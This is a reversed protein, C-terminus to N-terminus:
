EPSNTLANASLLNDLFAAYEDKMPLEANAVIRRREALVTQRTVPNYGEKAYTEWYLGTGRKQWAPLDNFNIGHAFLLEHKDSPRVGELRRTAQSVSHGNQRLTWYCWGNLACRAADSQRWRFYDIVQAVNVGLWARSDFYTPKGCALAFTAGAISASLSVLKELERDFLNWEPAFCVSIEDSETYAYVGHLEELLRQATTVMFDRFRADFPKEFHTETFRSFSRGDVRLVTWAGPLLRLAHFYEGARMRAEFADSEM